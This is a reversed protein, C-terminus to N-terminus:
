GMFLLMYVSFYVLIVQIITSLCDPIIGKDVEGMVVLLKETITLPIIATRNLCLFMDERIVVVIVEKIVTCVKTSISLFSLYVYCYLMTFQTKPSINAPRIVIDVDGVVILVKDMIKFILTSPRKLGFDVGEVMVM